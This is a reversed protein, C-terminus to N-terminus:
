SPTGASAGAVGFLREFFAATGERGDVGVAVGLATRRMASGAAAGGEVGAADDETVGFGFARATARSASGLKVLAGSSEGSVDLTTEYLRVVVAFMRSSAHACRMLPLGRGPTVDERQCTSQTNQTRGPRPDRRYLNWMDRLIQLRPLPNTALRDVVSRDRHLGASAAIFQASGRKVCDFGADLGQDCGM